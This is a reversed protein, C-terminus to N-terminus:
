IMKGDDFTNKNVNKKQEERIKECIWAPILEYGRTSARLNRDYIKNTRCHVIRRAHPPREDPGGGEGGGNGDKEIEPDVVAGGDPTRMDPDKDDDVKKRRENKREIPRLRQWPPLRNSRERDDDAM